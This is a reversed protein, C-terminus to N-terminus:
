KEIEDKLTDEKLRFNEREKAFETTGKALNDKIKDREYQLEQLKNEHSNVKIELENKSERLDVVQNELGKKQKHYKAKLQIMNENIPQGDNLELGTLSEREKEREKLVKAELEM